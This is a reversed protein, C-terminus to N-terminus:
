VGALDFRSSGRLVGLGLGTGAGVLDRHAPGGAQHLLVAKVAPAPLGWGLEARRDDDPDLLGGGRAAGLGGAGV